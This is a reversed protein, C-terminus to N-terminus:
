QRTFVAKDVRLSDQNRGYIYRAKLTLTTNTLLCEYAGPVAEMVPMVSRGAGGWPSNVTLETQAGNISWTGWDSNVFNSRVSCARPEQQWVVKGASTFTFTNLGLCPTTPSNSFTRFFNNTGTVTGNLPGFDITYDTMRWTTDDLSATKLAPAPEKKSCAALVAGVLAMGIIFTRKM